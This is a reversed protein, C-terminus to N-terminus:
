PTEVREFEARFWPILKIPRYELKTKRLPGSGSDSQFDILEYGAANALAAFRKTNEQYAGELDAEAKAHLSSLTQADKHVGLSFAVM